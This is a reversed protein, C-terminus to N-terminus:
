TNRKAIENKRRNEPVTHEQPKFNKFIHSQVAVVVFCFRIM